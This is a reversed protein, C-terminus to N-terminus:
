EQPSQDLAREISSLYQLKATERAAEDLSNEHFARDLNSLCNNLVPLLQKRLQTRKDPCSGADALKEHFDMVWTLFEVSPSSQLTLESSAASIGRITLLHRAREHPSKLADFATNLRASMTTAAQRETESQLAYKDPHWQRQLQKFRSGLSDLDVSFQEPIGLIRFYNDQTTALTCLTRLTSSRLHSVHRTVARYLYTHRAALHMVPSLKHSVSVQLLKLFIPITM